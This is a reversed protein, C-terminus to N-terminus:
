QEARVAARLSPAETLASSTGVAVHSRLWLETQLTFYLGVSFNSQVGRAYERVARKFEMADIVGASELLSHEFASDVMAPLQERMSRAFYGETVGTRKTRPALISDPLLGRMAARLLKKTEAGSSREERPRTLALEIVRKDYLPSRIEVGEEKAFTSVAGFVRPFYQHSLYWATERDARSGHTIRPAHLRDRQELSHTRAFRPDIWPPLSRELYSVLPRGGRLLQAAALAPDPLNPQIAWRFFNRFGSGSMGKTKWERALETLHGTRLLDALYVESVQFLQDGGVGELAVRSNTARTGRALSRHWMEFPHAFPEDRAAARESPHDFLPIHQIDLWHVNANWRAAIERILEDERGPDGEPYSISVPLLRRTSHEADLASAGAAFVAPSDWGGSLWISTDGETDLRESVARVLLKRLEIAAEEFPPANRVSAAPPSWHRHLRVPAGAVRTLTEGGQLVRVSEYCTEASGGWLGAATEAIVILNLATNAGPLALAGGATSSLVLTGNESGKSGRESYYLTRKGSFDRAAVVTHTRADWIVFAFDGELRAACDAGWACYAALILHSASPGTVGIHARALAARLDERYYLSADAVVTIEGDTVVLADGSFAPSQEWGRRAVALTAGAGRWIAFRDDSAARMSTLARYITTDDFAACEGGIVALIVSV